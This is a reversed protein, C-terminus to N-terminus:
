RWRDVGDYIALALLVCAVTVVAHCLESIVSEFM